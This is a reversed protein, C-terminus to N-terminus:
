DANKIFEALADDDMKRVIKRLKEVAVHERTARFNDFGIDVLWQAATRPVGNESISIIRDYRFSRMRRRLHCLGVLCLDRNQEEKIRMSTVTRRTTQKKADIYEIDVVRDPKIDYDMSGSKDRNYYPQPNESPAVFETRGSQPIQTNQRGVWQKHLKITRVARVFGYGACGALTLVALLIAGGNPNEAPQVCIIVVAVLCILPYLVVLRNTKGCEPCAATANDFECGCHWCIAM